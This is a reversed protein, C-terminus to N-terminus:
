NKQGGRGTTGMESSLKPMSLGLRIFPISFFIIRFTDNRENRTKDYKSINKHTKDTQFAYYLMSMMFGSSATPLVVDAEYLM